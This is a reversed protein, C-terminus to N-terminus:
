TKSMTHRPVYGPHGLARGIFREPRGLEQPRGRGSEGFGGSRCVARRSWERREVVFWAAV